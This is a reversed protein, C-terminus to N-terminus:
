KIFGKKVADAVSGVWAFKKRISDVHSVVGEAKGHIALDTPQLAHLGVKRDVISTVLYCVGRSRWVQAIEVNDPGQNEMCTQMRLAIKELADLTEEAVVPSPLLVGVRRAIMEILELDSPLKPFPKEPVPTVHDELTVKAACNPNGVGLGRTVVPGEWPRPTQNIRVFVVRDPEWDGAMWSVCEFRGDFIVGVSGASSTLIIKRNDEFVGRKVGAASDTVLKLEFQKDEIIYRSDGVKVPYATGDAAVLILKHEKGLEKPLGPLLADQTPKSPRVLEKPTVIDMLTPFMSQLLAPGYQANFQVPFSVDIKTRDLNSMDREGLVRMTYVHADDSDGGAFIQVESGVAPTEDFKEVDVIDITFRYEHREYSWIPSSISATYVKNQSFQCKVELRLRGASFAAAAACVIPNESM